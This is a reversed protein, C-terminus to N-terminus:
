LRFAIYPVQELVYAKSILNFDQSETIEILYRLKELGLKNM